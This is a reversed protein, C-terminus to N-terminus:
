LIDFGISFKVAAIPTYVEVVDEDEETEGEITHKIQISYLYDGFEMNETDEADITFQGTASDIEKELVCESDYASRKMGFKVEDNSMDYPDGQEDKFAVTFHATDGKTLFVENNENIKFM